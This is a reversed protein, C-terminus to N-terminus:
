IKMEALRSITSRILTMKGTGALGLINFSEKSNVVVNILSTFDNDEVDDIIKYEKSEYIYKENRKFGKM